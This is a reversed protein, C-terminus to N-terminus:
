LRDKFFENKLGQSIVHALETAYLYAQHEQFIKRVCSVVTLKFELCSNTKLTLFIKNQKTNPHPIVHEM